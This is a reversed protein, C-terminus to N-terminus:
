YKTFLLPLSEWSWCEDWQPPQRWKYKNNDWIIWHQFNHDSSSPLIIPPIIPFVISSIPPHQKGHIKFSISPIRTQNNNSSPSLQALRPGIPYSTKIRDPPPRRFFIRINRDLSHSPITPFFNTRFLFIPLFPMFPLFIFIFIFFVGRGLEEVSM